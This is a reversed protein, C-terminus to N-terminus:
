EHLTPWMVRFISVACSLRKRVRTPKPKPSAAVFGRPNLWRAKNEQRNKRDWDRKTSYPNPSGSFAENNAIAERAEVRNSGAWPPRTEMEEQKKKSIKPLHRSKSPQM